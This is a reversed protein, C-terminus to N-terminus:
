KWEGQLVFGAWFSPSSWRRSEWLSVQAARLAAAPRLREGGLMGEYFRKMLEATAADDVKWLSAVVRPAGAYMFARTLGVVGEGRIEKGLATRCGSLVVLDARLRLNFVESTPLFGDQEEGGPGVLSLVIGSLEPHVGNLFGHTAFHVFRYQGLEPDTATARSAEFDLAARAAQPSVLGLIAMAERRTFPLRPIGEGATALGVDRLARAVAEAGTGAEAEAGAVAGTRKATRAAKVREDEADFVPDALVALTRPPPDRGPLERRLAALTSASPLSVVEHRAVLPVAPNAPDPLAAFPVYQLAGDSVVLLRKDALDNRLPELLMGALAAASRRFAAKSETEAAKRSGGPGPGGGPLTLRDYVQRAAQELEDRGPLEHSRVTEPTVAWVFSREKGLAYEVLLTAPDVVQRQIETVSLPQPRTLAAYRPSVARIEAQAEEYAATAERIERDLDAVQEEAPERSTLRMQRRLLSHLRHRSSRERGLLEPEVGERIDVGGEDLLELLSRARSRESAELARASFGGEPEREHLRMLLDVYLEYIERVSAFYSARLEPSAVKIRTSEIIALAAEAQARAEALNGEERWTRALEGLAIVEGARDGVRRSLDVAARLQQLAPESEGGERHLAGLARLAAAEGRRDNVARTLGLSQQLLEMAKQTEGLAQFAAGMRTLAYAEGYRYGLERLLPLARGYFELAKRHDGLRHHASAINTLVTAERFRDGVERALLLAQGLYDLAKPLDGLQVYAVGLNNLTVVEGSRDGLERSLRLSRRYHDLAKQPEGLDDHVEGINGLTTAEGFRDGLRRLLPLAQAYYELAKENENQRAYALGINSLANAEGDAFGARRLLSLSEGLHDLAKQYEGRMLHVLGMGNLVTGETRLDGMARSLRLAQDYHDLAKESEGQDACVLGINNLTVAEGARDKLARRLALAEQYHELAKRMEGRSYYAEGLNNLAEAEGRRDGLSRRLSLARSACDLAKPMEGLLYHVEGMSSLTDAERARDGSARWLPLAGELKALAKQLSEATGQGQLQKAEALAAAAALREKDPDQPAAAPPFAAILVLGALLLYGHKSATRAALAVM